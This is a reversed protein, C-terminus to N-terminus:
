SLPKPLEDSKPKVSKGKSNSVKIRKVEARDVTTKVLKMNRRLDAGRSYHQAMTTTKQSLADAISRDDRGEERLLNAMTHRLGHITLGEGIKGEKELRLKEKRWSARFGSATWKKGRSNAAITKAGHRPATDLIKKLEDPIFWYYPVGTKSRHGSIVKGNYDAKPVDLADSETLALYMCLAVPIRLHWELEKLVVFREEDSWPRNARPATKDRKINKLGRAPNLTMIGRDVAFSFLLSLVQKVYNAFRRKRTEFAKDRIRIILTSDFDVLPFLVIPKLYDFVKLYDAQTTPSLDLFSPSKRYELILHGLTGATPVQERLMLSIRECESFFGASGLPHKKLDVATGTKRHYCRKKGYRDSFIQFGKVRIVTM